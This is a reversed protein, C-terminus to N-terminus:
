CAFDENDRFVSGYAPDELVELLVLDLHGDNDVFPARELSKDGYLIDQLLYNALYSVLEILLFLRRDAFARVAGPQHVAHQCDVLQLFAQPEPLKGALLLRVILRHAAHHHVGEPADRASPVAELPLPVGELHQVHVPSADVLHQNYGPVISGDLFYRLFRRGARTLARATRM